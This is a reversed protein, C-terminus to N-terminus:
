SNEERSILSAYLNMVEDAQGTFMLLSYIVKRM